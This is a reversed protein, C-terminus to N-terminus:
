LLVVASPAHPNIVEKDNGCFQVFLPRDGTCTQMAQKRYKPEEAFRRSHIMPTYCLTAGYRRTLMRYALESQDM